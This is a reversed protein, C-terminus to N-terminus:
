EINKITSPFPNAVGEDRPDMVMGEVMVEM